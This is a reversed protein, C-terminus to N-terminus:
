MNEVIPPSGYVLIVNPIKSNIILKRSTNDLVDIYPASSPAIVMNPAMPECRSKNPISTLPSLPFSNM